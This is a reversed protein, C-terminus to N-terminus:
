EGGEFPLPQQNPDPIEGEVECAHRTSFSLKGVQRNKGLDLSITFTFSAKGTEAGDNLHKAIDSEHDRFLANLDDAAQAGIAEIKPNNM